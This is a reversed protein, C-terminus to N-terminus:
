PLKQRGVAILFTLTELAGYPYVVEGMKQQNEYV